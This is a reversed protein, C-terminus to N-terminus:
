KKSKSNTRMVLINYGDALNLYYDFSDDDRDFHIGQTIRESKKDKSDHLNIM